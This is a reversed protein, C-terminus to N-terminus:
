LPIRAQAQFFDKNLYIEGLYPMEQIISGFVFLFTCKSSVTRRFGEVGV